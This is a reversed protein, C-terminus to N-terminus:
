FNVTKEQVIILDGPLLPFNGDKSLDIVARAAPAPKLSSIAPVWDGLDVLDFLDALLDEVPVLVDVFVRLLPKYRAPRVPGM